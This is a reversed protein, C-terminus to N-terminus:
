PVRPRRTSPAFSPPLAAAPPSPVSPAAASPADPPMTPPAPVPGAGTAASTRLGGVKTPPAPPVPPVSANHPTWPSSPPPTAPAPTSAPVPAAPSPATPGAAPLAGSLSRLTGRSPDQARRVDYVTTGRCHGARLVAVIARPSAPPLGAVDDVCRLGLAWGGLGRGRLCHAALLGVLLVLSTLTSALRVAPVSRSAVALTVPVAVLCVDVFGSAIVAPASATRCAPWTSARPVTSCEELRHSSLLSHASGGDSYPRDIRVREAM